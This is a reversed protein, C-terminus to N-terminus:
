KKVEVTTSILVPPSPPPAFPPGPILATLATAVLINWANLLGLHTTLTDGLVASENEAGIDSGIKIKSGDIHIQLGSEKGFTAHDSSVGSLPTKFSRVGPIFIGDSLHFRRDDLPDVEGGESLWVDLSAQSFLLLGTDGPQLPFSIFYGGGSPWQVPVGPIVPLRAVVREGTEDEFAEKIVPQISARQLTADYSEVRGPIATHLESFYRGLFVRLAGVLSPDREANSM